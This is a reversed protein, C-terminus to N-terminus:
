VPTNTKTDETQNKGKKTFINVVKEGFVVSFMWCLLYFLQSKLTEELDKGSALNTISIGIFLFTLLFMVVRKSSPNGDSDTLIGKIFKKM